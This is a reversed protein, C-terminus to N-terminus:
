PLVVVEGGNRTILARLTADDPPRSFFRTSADMFLATFGPAFPGGLKPLPGKPDFPLDAPKTWPVPEAAEAVVITNSTGDLFDTIRLGQKANLIFGAGPNTEAPSVFAQYFTTHPEKTRVGVPAYVKPMKELLKMNHPSDWPENLKFERYLPDQEIFPLIAVRWSLLPKGDPDCIAPPPLRMNTDHFNLLALGIQKLNNQSTARWRGKLFEPDDLLEKAAARARDQLKALDDPLQAAVHVVKGRTEVRATRLAEELDGILLKWRAVAEVAAPETTPEERGILIEEAVGVGFIRLLVLADQAATAGKKAEAEDAYHLQAVAAPVKGLDLAVAAPRAKLLPVLARLIARETGPAFDLELARALEDKLMKEPVAQGATVTHKGSAALELAPALPGKFAAPAPRALLRLLAPTTSAGVVTRSNLLHLSLLPSEIIAKGKVKAPKGPVRDALKAQTIDTRLHVILIFRDAEPGDPRDPGEGAPGSDKRGAQTGRADPPVAAPKDQKGSEKRDPEKPPVSKPADKLDKPPAEKRDPASPPPPPEVVAKPGPAGPRDPFPGPGGSLPFPRYWAITVTDVQELPLFASLDRLMAQREEAPLLQVLKSKMLDAVHVHIFGVADEPVLKLPSPGGKKDKGQAALPSMPGAVFLALAAANLTFVTLAVALRRRRTLASTLNRM